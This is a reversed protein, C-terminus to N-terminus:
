FFKAQPVDEDDLVVFRKELIRYKLRIPCWEGDNSKYEYTLSYEPPTYEPNVREWKVSRVFGTDKRLKEVERELFTRASASSAFGKALLWDRGEQIELQEEGWIGCQRTSSIAYYAITKM